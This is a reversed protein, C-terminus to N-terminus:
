APEFGRQPSARRIEEALRTRRRALRLPPGSREAMGFAGVRHYWYGDDTFRVTLPRATLEVDLLTVCAGSEALDAAMARKRRRDALTCDLVVPDPRPGEAFPKGVPAPPPLGPVVPVRRAGDIFGAELTALLASTRSPPLLGLDTFRILRRRQAARFGDLEAGLLSPDAFKRCFHVKSAGIEFLSRPVRESTRLASAAFAHHVEAGPVGMTAWGAAHMRRNVDTEDLFFRYAEDFGGIEVLAARRFACNTGVTKMARDPGGAHRFPGPLDPLPWDNGFADVEQFGWQVSVGNRGRVLGAAAGVDAEAFSAALRELWPPEPVADDDCFAVIDGGTAAIGLNRSRSINAEACPVLRARRALPVDRALEAARNTVITLDFGRLTQHELAALTRALSAVRDRNLVVVSVSQPTM